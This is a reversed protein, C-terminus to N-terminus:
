KTIEETQFDAWDLLDHIKEDYIIETALDIAEQESDTEIEYVIPKPTITIKYSPMM